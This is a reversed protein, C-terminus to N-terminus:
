NRGKLKGPSDISEELILKIIIDRINQPQQKERRKIQHAQRM